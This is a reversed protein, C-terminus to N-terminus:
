IFQINLCMLGILESTQMSKKKCMFILSKLLQNQAYIDHRVGNVNIRDIGTTIISQKVTKM